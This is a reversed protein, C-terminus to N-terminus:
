SMRSEVSACSEQIVEGKPDMLRSGSTDTQICDRFNGYVTAYRALEAQQIVPTNGQGIYSPVANQMPYRRHQRQSSSEQEESGSRDILLTNRFSRDPEAGRLLQVTGTKRGWCSLRGHQFVYNCSQEIATRIDLAEMVTRIGATLQRIQVQTLHEPVNLIHVKTM